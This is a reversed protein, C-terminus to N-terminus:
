SSVHQSLKVGHFIEQRDSYLEDLELDGFTSQPLIFRPYLIKLCRSYEELTKNGAFLRVQTVSQFELNSNACRISNSEGHYINVRRIFLRLNQNCVGESVGWDGTAGSRLQASESQFTQQM